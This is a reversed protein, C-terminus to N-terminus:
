HSPAHQTVLTRLKIYDRSAKDIGDSYQAHTITGATFFDCLQKMRSSYLGADQDIEMLKFHTIKGSVELKKAADIIFSANTEAQTYESCSPTTKFFISFIEIKFISSTLTCADLSLAMFM